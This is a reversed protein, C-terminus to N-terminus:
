AGSKVKITTLILSSDDKNFEVNSEYDTTKFESNNFNSIYGKDGNKVESSYVCPINLFRASYTFLVDCHLRLIVMSNNIREINRIFYYRKLVPIYAYNFIDFKLIDSEKLIIEPSIIDVDRKLNINESHVLGLTKNVVNDSDTITFLQLEM